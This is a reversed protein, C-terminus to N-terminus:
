QRRRLWRKIVRIAFRYHSATNAGVYTVLANQRTWSFHGPAFLQEESLSEVRAVIQRYGTEFDRRVAALSRTRHKSGIMRNLKPTENWKYGKAPMPGDEFWSLLMRQWEALHAILDKLTWNEGWVGKETYRVGPIEDLHASLSDHQARIDILLDGKSAYRM